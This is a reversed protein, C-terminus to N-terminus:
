QKLRRYVTVNKGTYRCMKRGCPEVLGMKSMETLRPATFNREDTPIYGKNRMDVAIEKATMPINYFDMTELIQQYRRNKDVKEHAEARTEFTVVQGPLRKQYEFIDMQGDCEYKAFRDM